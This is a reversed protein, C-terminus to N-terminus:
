KENVLGKVMSDLASRSILLQRAKLIDYTSANVGDRVEFKPINRCSKVVVPQNGDVLLLVSGGSIAFKTLMDAMARTRPEPLSVDSLLRIAGSQAKVSLAVKRALRKVKIPLKMEFDTPKPGFMTGGHRWVPSRNSGSRATGRGKQKWPKKGGGSVFERTKTARTGQRRNTLEAKVALYLVHDNRELGFLRPDLEIEEGTASGSMNYVPLKLSVPTEPVDNHLEDETM